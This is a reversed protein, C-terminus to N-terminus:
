QSPEWKRNLLRFELPEDNLLMMSYGLMSEKGIFFDLGPLPTGFLFYIVM